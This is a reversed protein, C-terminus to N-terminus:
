KTIDTSGGDRDTVIQEALEQCLKQISINGLLKIVSVDKGVSKFIWSRADVAALSDVGLDSMSQAPNIAGEPLQLIMTLRGVLANMIADAIAARDSLEAISELLSQRAGTVAAIDDTVDPRIYHGFRADQHWHLPNLDLPDFRSLGTTLDITSDPGFEGGPCGAVVAELFMHHIDRESIPPYGDRELGVYLNGKERQLLGLGYIVGINLVSGALGRRRRNAALGNMYMNATAYNAQGPHGGVAAFSSTMIFFELDNDTFAKDLNSSGITKPRLVRNWTDIDMQAFVRDNLIMAGNIVGAVPPMSKCLEDKFAMVSDLDTVDCNRMEIRADYDQRLEVTWNPNLNPGRSALVIYRAGHEVLMYCLSQGFDKTLGILVYTRDARFLQEETRRQTIRKVTREARWDIIQFPSGNTADTSSQLASLSVTDGRGHLSTVCSSMTDARMVALKWAAENALSDLHTPIGVEYGAGFLSTRSRYECKAPVLGAIHESLSKHKEPQLDVIFGNSRPFIARIQQASANTHLFRSTYAHDHDTDTTPTTSYCTIRGDVIEAVCQAFEPDSDILVIRRGRAQSAVISATLYRTALSALPLGFDMISDPNLVLTKRVSVYSANSQSLAIVPKNTSTESGLCVYASTHSDLRIAEVSSYNVRISVQEPETKSNNWRSASTEYRVLGRSVLRPIVEISERLTNTPNSIVRRMVNVRDNAQKLPLVRPILRKGGRIHIEREDTWLYNRHGATTVMLRILTDAVIDSSGEIVELDLMQLTLLPVEASVTRTFGFTAAHDPNGSIADHTLWLGKMTPHLFERLQELDRQTMTSMVPKDLDALVIAADCRALVQSDISDFTARFSIHGCLPSLREELGRVLESHKIGGIILLHSAISDRTQSPQKILELEPSRLQWVMITSGLYYSQNCNNAVQIFGFADLLDPFEPPTPHGSVVNRGRMQLLSDKTSSATRQVLVLFGGPTMIKRITKLINSISGELQSASLMVLDYHKDSGLQSGFDGTLDLPSSIIKKGTSELMEIHRNINRVDGTGITFSLFSSGIAFLVDRLFEAEPGALGLINMQPYRHVIQKVVRGIHRNFCSLHHTEMILIKLANCVFDPQYNGLTPILSLQSYYDSDEILKDVIERTDSLWYDTATAGLISPFETSLERFYSDLKSPQETPDLNTRVFFTAVRAVSEVLMQDYVLGRLDFEGQVIEQVPDVDMVTSLYLEYDDKPLSDSIAEVTLGEVQIELDGHDNFIGMDVVFASKSDPTSPRVDVMHADIALTDNENAASLQDHTALNFSIRDIRAPLFSAWLANDGPSSYTLFASQFCADLTAPSIRLTTTDESHRRKLTGTSYNYRRKISELARFPGTYTLGLKEMVLYFSEPAASLCESKSPSRPPLIDLGADGLHIKISGTMNLRMTTTGDAPCSALTVGAEITTDGRKQVALTFLTEVGIFEEVSIGSMIQLDQLEILSASKGNLITRAADFAMVCYASAPLLAHGQFSHHELWPLKSRRLLNRWRLQHENDDRTRSGLLEHPPDSKLHFNRSIRSERYHIQSHDWPYLPLNYLNTGLVGSSPSQEIYKRLDAGRTGHHSWSFGLLDSFALSDDKTRDLASSYPIDLDLAKAIQTFPSKLAAHPGVELVYDFPGYESLAYVVADHFRVVNVMNDKWYESGLEEDGSMPRGHVSSVWIMGNGQADVQINHSKLIKVYAVAPKRMHPSHYASDIHLPRSFKDTQLLEDHAMKIADLDGSLTVSSPANSAAIHIKTDFRPRSCFGLAEEQSLGVALMAGKQGESGGSLHALFGRYYSILMADKASIKGAAYAAAIEGSSHGVVTHFRVGLDKLLDVLAIQIATCLPQSVAAVEVLSAKGEAMIQKELTWGPPDPCSKLIDDLGRIKDRYIKSTHFLSRSMTAWQAGQGTFVGLIKPKETTQKSRVWSDRGCDAKSLFEDFAELAQTRSAASVALRYPLATRRSFLAWSLQDPSIDQNKLLFDKYSTVVAVLSKHSAASLLLPLSFPTHETEETPGLSKPTSDITPHRYITGHIRPEYAEVIAHANAGGFGFSNVSARKPQGPPPIPWPMISTPIKLRKCFPKVTPNVSVLHLNPPVSDHKMAQIVKFIGALGAAGETHGIVTKVSGVLLRNTDPTGADTVSANDTDDGFFARSIAEAERPDGAPTGTGHAEFFQCRDEPIAPDLGARAYTDRVLAIQSSPNPLTIGPTRGDSNTGTERIIAAIQDGDALARSLPKLLLAAIGEGRAYGDASADWMRSKGSPSLMHLSSEAIFQDPTILLNVGTVCAMVSERNRLSTVAQHLAVLSSSCATDITMSPGQFNFFYSIRNSIISRANGTACYQSTVLDDRQSLTDYDATMVGAFVAVKKGNYTTLTYGASEMAEYVVELLIRQQPDMAEAEIPNINFMTADFDRHSQDLWYGRISNTTGHYEGDSHYFAKAAFRDPPVERSLDPAECLVDWLKAPSTAGGAFRCGSGVVAIPEAPPRKCAM